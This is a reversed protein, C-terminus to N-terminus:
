SKSSNLMVDTSTEKYVKLVRASPNVVDGSWKPLWYYPLIEGRDNLCTDFIKRYYYAEKIQPPNHKYKEKNDIFEQDTILSDINNQIIEYWPKTQSSIGDSMGEKSRWLVDEPLLDMGDYAKRLLYKEIKYNKPLKFKPAIGLYFNLFAKDLFPVRVELGAGATSKDCRLVDFYSLDQMLRLIEEQFKAEDPANHFYMYSGSAEDSGEGSFLVTVDTNDKVYKSLLYM